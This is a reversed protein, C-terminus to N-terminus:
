RGGAARRREDLLDLVGADLESDFKRAFLADSAEIADLDSATLVKPHPDGPTAFHAYRRNHRAVDLQPHNLLVTAFFGESPVAVRQYYRVLREEKAARRVAAIAERGLTLWDASVFPRLRDGFPTKLRRVGLQPPLPSPRERLYALPRLRGPLRPTGAPVAYHRFLYRLFFEDRPPQPLKGTPVEWADGLLADHGTQALFAENEALPRVPYDQGSLVLLWDPDLERAAREVLEVLLALQGFGGWEFTIDDEVALAGEAEIESRPLSSGRQDHRVLVDAAPGERLVRVLRLVQEPNRHSVVAYAVKM